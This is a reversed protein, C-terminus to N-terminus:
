EEGGLCRSFDLNTVSIKFGHSQYFHLAAKNSVQTDVWVRSCGKGKLWKIGELMLASAVGKRRMKQSVALLDIYGSPVGSLDLGNFVSIFGVPDGQNRVVFVKHRECSNVVWKEFLLAVKEKPLCPDKFFRSEKFSEKVIDKLADLDHSDFDEVKWYTDVFQYKSVELFLTVNGGVYYAKEKILANIIVGLSAELRIMIHLYGQKKAECFANAILMQVENIESLPSVLFLIRGMKIGFIESDFPQPYLVAGALLEEKNKLFYYSAGGEPLLLMDEKGRKNASFPTVSPLSSYCAGQALLKKCASAAIRGALKVIQLNGM